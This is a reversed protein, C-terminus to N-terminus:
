LHAVVAAPVLPQEAASTGATTTPEPAKNARKESHLSRTSSSERMRPNREPLKLIGMAFLVGFTILFLGLLAYIVRATKRGTVDVVPRANAANMFRDWNFIAVALSFLGGGFMIVAFYWHAPDKM